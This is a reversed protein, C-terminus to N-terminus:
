RPLATYGHCALNCLSPPSPTLTMRRLCGGRENTTFGLVGPPRPLTSSFRLRLSKPTLCVVMRHISEYGYAQAYATRPAAYMKSTHWAIWGTQTDAGRSRSTLCLPGRGRGGTGDGEGQDLGRGPPITSQSPCSPNLRMAASFPLHWCTSSPSPPSPTSSLHGPGDCRKILRALPLSAVLAVCAPTNTPCRTVVRLPLHM